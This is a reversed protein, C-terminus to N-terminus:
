ILENKKEEQHTKKQLMKKKNKNKMRRKNRAIDGHVQARGHPGTLYGIPFALGPLVALIPSLRDLVLLVDLNKTKFISIFPFILLRSLMGLGDMLTTPVHIGYYALPMYLDNNEPYSDIWSPLSQLQYVQKEALLSNPVTILLVPVVAVLLVMLGKLPHYCKNKEKQSVEKGNEMNAYVIEGITVDDQGMAAGRGYMIGGCVVLILGNAILRLFFQNFNLASGGLVYMLCFFAYFGFLKVAEKGCNASWAKGKHYPKHVLPKKKKAKQM